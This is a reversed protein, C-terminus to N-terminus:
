GLQRWACNFQVQTVQMVHDPKGADRGALSDTHRGRELQRQVKRDLFLDWFLLNSSSSCLSIVVVMSSSPLLYTMKTKILDRQICTACKNFYHLGSEMSFIM